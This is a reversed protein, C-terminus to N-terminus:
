KRPVVKTPNIVEGFPYTTEGMNIINLIERAGAESSMFSQAFRRGSDAIIALEEKRELYYKSKEIFEQASNFSIIENDDKFMKQYGPFRYVFAATGSGMIHSLRDSFYMSQVIAPITFSIKANGLTEYYLKGRIFHQGFCAHYNQVYQRQLILERLINYRYADWQGFNPKHESGLWTIPITRKSFEKPVLYSEEYPCLFLSCPTNTSQYYEKLQNGTKCHFAWDCGSSVKLVFPEINRRQDMYWYLITGAYGKQKLEKLMTAEICEGKIIFVIDPKSNRIEKQLSQNMKEPSTEKAVRRYDFFEVEWGIKQFALALMRDHAHQLMEPGHEYWTIGVFLIKM